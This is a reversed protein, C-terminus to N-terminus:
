NKTKSIRKKYEEARDSYEKITDGFRNYIETQAEKRDKLFNLRTEISELNGENEKIEKELEKLEIKKNIRANKYYEVFEKANIYKKKLEEINDGKYFVFQGDIKECTYGECHELKEMIENMLSDILESFYDQLENKINAETIDKHNKLDYVIESGVTMPNIIHYVGAIDYTMKDEFITTLDPYEDEIIIVSVM